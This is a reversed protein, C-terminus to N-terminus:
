KCRWFKGAGVGIIFLWRRGRQGEKSLASPSIDEDHRWEGTDKQM